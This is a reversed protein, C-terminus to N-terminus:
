ADALAGNSAHQGIQSNVYRNSGYRQQAIEEICPEFPINAVYCKQLAFDGPTRLRQLGPTPDIGFSRLTPHTSIVRFELQGTLSSNNQSM